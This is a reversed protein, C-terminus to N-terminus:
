ELCIELMTWKKESKDKNSANNWQANNRTQEHKPVWHSGTNCVPNNPEGSRRIKILFFFCIIKTWIKAPRNPWYQTQLIEYYFLWIDLVIAPMQRDWIRGTFIRILRRLHAPQDSDESPAFTRLYTEHRQPKYLSSGCLVWLSDVLCSIHWFSTDWCCWSNLRHRGASQVTDKMKLGVTKFYMISRSYVSQLHATQDQDKCSVYTFSLIKKARRALDASLLYMYIIYM